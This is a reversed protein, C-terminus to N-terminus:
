VPKRWYRRLILLGGVLVLVPGAWLLATHPAMPPDLLIDEGYRSAFFQLIEQNGQGQAVQERVLHRMDQALMANSDALSQGECVMCRLQKFLEQTRAEAAPDKLPEDSM